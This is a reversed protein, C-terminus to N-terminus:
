NGPTPTADYHVRFACELWLVQLTLQEALHLVTHSLSLNHPHHQELGMGSYSTTLRQSSIVTQVAPTPLTLTLPFKYKQQEALLVNNLTTSITKIVESRIYFFFTGASM